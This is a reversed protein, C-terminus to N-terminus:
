EQYSAIAEELAVRIPTYTIGLEREAKGGDAEMGMKGTRMGDISMGWLPPRKILDALWTLLTANLMAMYDPLRINPHPIGSIESVMEYFERMSLQYKGVIYKEGINNEKEAARVIVEAVDRVHVWTFVSDDFATAPIKRHLLRKILKGSFKTDGPGLVGGPYIVVLPLKKQEYLDWAILDGEYKTRAYESFRVPGVPSEETFPHEAPKGYVVISSVHVVKSIGTELACEMVKQTGNVNIDTYIRKDPEWYSYVNALHIVWDCGRMGAVLSAKDTVDGVVLNAGLKDLYSVNSTKRVLCFLEHDSRTLRQVVHRGIFGTGGTIFIKM